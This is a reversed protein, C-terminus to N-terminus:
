RVPPAFLRNLDIPAFDVVIIGILVTITLLVSYKFGAAFTGSTIKGIFLGVLYAQFVTSAAFLDRMGESKIASSAGLQREETLNVGETLGSFSDMVMLTTFGTIGMIIFAVMVYPKLMERKEKEVNYMKESSEALTDLAEAYGGGSDIVEILTQFNILVFWSSIEKRINSIITRLPVGWGLQNVARDLVNTFVDYGKRKLAHVMCREPSLGTKRAEAIDRLISPTAREASANIKEIKQYELFPIISAALLALGMFYPLGFFGLDLPLVSPIITMPPVVAVALLLGKKVIKETGIYTSSTMMQSIFMLIGSMLPPIILFVHSLRAMSSPDPIISLALSPTSSLSVFIIYMTLIVVQIIMYADVLAALKTVLQRGIAGQLDFISQMKSKLFHVVSGGTQVTSVYGALFDQYLKSSTEGAKKNMVSLPDMGLIEVQKVMSSAEKSMNPLLDFHMIKKLSVFPTIGSAAMLTILAMFYPLEKDIKAATQKSATKKNSEMKKKLSIM